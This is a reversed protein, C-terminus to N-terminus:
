YRVFKVCQKANTTETPRSTGLMLDGQATKVERKRVQKVHIIECMFTLDKEKQGTGKSHGRTQLVRM